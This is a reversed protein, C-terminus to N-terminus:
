QILNNVEDCFNKLSQEYANCYEEEADIRVNQVEPISQANVAPIHSALQPPIYEPNRPEVRGQGFGGAVAEARQRQKLLRTTWGVLAPISRQVLRDFHLIVRDVYHVLMFLMCGPFYGKENERWSVAAASLTRLIFRCWNFHPIKDVNDVVELIHLVIYGNKTSEIYMSNFLLIFHFKFLKGGDTCALMARVTESYKVSSLKEAVINKKWENFLANTSSIRKGKYKIKLPGRLLGLVAEVDDETVDLTENTRLTLKSAMGDYHTLIWYCLYNPFEKIKMNLISGFGMERVAAKQEPSFEAIANVLMPSSGRNQAEKFKYLIDDPKPKRSRKKKSSRIPGDDVPAVVIHMNAERKRKSGKRSPPQQSSEATHTPHEESAM